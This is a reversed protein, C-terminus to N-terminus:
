GMLERVLGSVVKGDAQGGVEAMVAKMVLGFAQPGGAGAAPIHKRVIERIEDESLQRPLYSMTIDLEEQERAAIETRGGARAAELAERRKKAYATLVRQESGEDLDKGQAIRENKLESILMRVTSLRVKDGSKMAAKMDENLKDRIM